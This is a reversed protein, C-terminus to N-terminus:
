SPKIRDNLLFKIIPPKLQDVNALSECMNVLLSKKKKKLKTVECHFLSANCLLKLLSKENEHETYHKDFIIVM